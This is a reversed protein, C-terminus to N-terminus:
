RPPYVNSSLRKINLLAQPNKAKILLELAHEIVIKESMIGTLKQAKKLLPDSLDIKLKM